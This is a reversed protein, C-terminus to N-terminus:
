DILESHSCCNLIIVNWLKTWKQLLLIIYDKCSQITYLIFQVKQEQEQYWGKGNIYYYSIHCLMLGISGTAM